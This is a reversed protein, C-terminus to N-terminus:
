FLPVLLDTLRAVKMAKQSLLVPFVGRPGVHLDVFSQLVTKQVHSDFTREKRLSGAGIMLHRLMKECWDLSRSNERLLNETPVIMLQEAKM